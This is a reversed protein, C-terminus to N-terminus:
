QKAKIKQSMKRYINALQEMEKNTLALYQDNTVVYNMTMNNNLQLRNDMALVRSPVPVLTLNRGGMDIQQVNLKTVVAPYTDQALKGDPLPM